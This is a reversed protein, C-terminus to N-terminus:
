DYLRKARKWRNYAWFYEVPHAHVHAELARAYSVLVQDPDAVQGAGALPLFRVVYYGPRERRMAALFVSYGMKAAIWGPGRYFATEQGFFPLWIQQENSAAPSQDALLALLRVKGRQELLHQVLQKAQVLTAGFRSRMQLLARDGSRLAVPKYAAVMPEPFATSCRLLLWEWNCHHAALIMARQGGDLVAQVAEPNEFRVREELEAPTIRWAHLAEAVLEGLYRYFNRAIRAREDEGQESLCRSLHTEVVARRWGFVRLCVAVFGLVVRLLPLPLLSLLRFM